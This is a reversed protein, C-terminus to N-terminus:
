LNLLAVHNRLRDSAPCAGISELLCEALEQVDPDESSAHPAVVARFEEVLLEANRVYSYFDSSINWVVTSFLRRLGAHDTRLFSLSWLAGDSDIICRTRNGVFNHRTRITDAAISGGFSELVFLSSERVEIIPGKM